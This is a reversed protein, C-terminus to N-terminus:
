SWGGLLGESWSRCTSSRQAASRWPPESTWCCRRFAGLAEVHLRLNVTPVAQQFDRLVGALMKSPAIIDVALAVKTELGQRIGRARAVLGDAEDAVARADALLAVGAETLEPRRSGERHFLTVGLQRELAAIGYSGVFGTSSERLGISAARTPWLLSYEFSIM